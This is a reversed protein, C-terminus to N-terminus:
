GDPRADTAATAPDKPTGMVEYSAAHVSHDILQVPSVSPKLARKAYSTIPLSGGDYVPGWRAITLQGGAQRQLGRRLGFTEVAAARHFGADASCGGHM